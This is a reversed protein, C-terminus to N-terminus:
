TTVSLSSLGELGAEATAFYSYVAGVEYTQPNFLFICTFSQADHIAYVSFINSLDILTLYM